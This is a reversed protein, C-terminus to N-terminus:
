IRWVALLIAAVGGIVWPLMAFLPVSHSQTVASSTGFGGLSIGGILVIGVAGALWLAGEWKRIRSSIRNFSNRGIMPITGVIGQMFESDGSNAAGHRHLATSRVATVGQPGAGQEERYSLWKRSSRTGAWSTTGSPPQFTAGTPVNDNLYVDFTAHASPREGSDGM